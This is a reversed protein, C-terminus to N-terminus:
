DGRQTLTDGLAAIGIGSFLTDSANYNILAQWDSTRVCGPFPIMCSHRFPIRSSSITLSRKTMDVSNLVVFIALYREFRTIEALSGPMATTNILVTDATFSDGLCTRATSKGAPLTRM